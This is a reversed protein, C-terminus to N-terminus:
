KGWVQVWGFIVQGAGQGVAMVGILGATDTEFEALLEDNIRATIRQGRVDLRVRNGATGLLLNPWQQWEFWDQRTAGDLQYAEAYGNGNILVASYHTEDRWGFVLGYKAGIEGGSQAGTIELTFDGAPREALGASWQGPATFDALLAGQRPALAGGWALLKWRATNAKFDDKWLLPGARPPDAAGLSLAVALGIVAVALLGGGWLVLRWLWGPVAQDSRMPCITGRESKQNQIKSKPNGIGCEDNKMRWEDNTM